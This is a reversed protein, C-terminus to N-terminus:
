SYSILEQLSSHSRRNHHSASLIYIIYTVTQPPPLRPYGPRDASGYRGDATKIVMAPTLLQLVLRNIIM